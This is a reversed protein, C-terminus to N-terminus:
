RRRPAPIGIYGDPERPVENLLPIEALSPEADNFMALDILQEDFEGPPPWLPVTVKPIAKDNTETVLVEQEMPQPTTTPEQVPAPEPAPKPKSKGSHFKGHPALVMGNFRKSTRPEAIRVRVPTYETISIPDRNYITENEVIVMNRSSPEPALEPTQQPLQVPQPVRKVVPPRFVKTNKQPVVHKTVPPAETKVYNHTVPVHPTIITNNNFGGKDILQLIEDQRKGVAVVYETFKQEMNLTKSQCDSVSASIDNVFSSFSNKWTSLFSSCLQEVRTKVEAEIKEIAKTNTALQGTITSAFANYSDLISQDNKKRIANEAIIATEVAASINTVMNVTSAATKALENELMTITTATESTSQEIQRELAAIMETQDNRVIDLGDRTSAALQAISDSMIASVSQIQQGMMGFTAQTQRNLSEMQAALTQGNETAAQNVTTINQNIRMMQDAVSQEFQQQRHSIAKLHEELQNFRNELSGVQAATHEAFDRTKANEHHLQSIMQQIKENNEAAKDNISNISYTIETIKDKMSGILMQNSNTIADLKSTLNSIADQCPKIRLPFEIAFMRDMMYQMKQNGMEYSSRASEAYQPEPTRPEDSQRIGVIQQVASSRFTSLGSRETMQQQLDAAYQIRKQRRQNELQESERGWMKLTCDRLFTVKESFFGEQPLINM